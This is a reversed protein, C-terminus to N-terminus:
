ASNLKQLRTIRRDQGVSAQSRCLKRSATLAQIGLVHSCGLHVKYFHLLTARIEVTALLGCRIELQKSRVEESELRILGILKM